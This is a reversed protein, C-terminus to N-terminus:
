KARATGTKTNAFPIPSGLPVVREFLAIESPPIVRDIHYSGFVWTNYRCQERIEDFFTDLINAENEEMTLLKKMKRSCQHTVIYDVSCDCSALNRRATELDNKAPLMEEQWGVSIDIMEASPTEGGGFAFIRRGDINFVSGRCLQRLRGSIVRTRGGNWEEEPYKSLLYLNDHVGEVFLVSYRRKGIWRLLKKERDSGDWLFGFDGCIILYDNKRLRKIDKERFRTIDGHLDGTAYIM